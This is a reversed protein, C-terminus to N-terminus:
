GAKTLKFLKIEFPALTFSLKGNYAYTTDPADVPTGYIMQTHVDSLTEPAGMLKNFTLTLPSPESDPNRLAIIGEGDDSFSIYGYVNNEQPNGGIFMGNKLIAFNEHQFRMVKKLAEWKADSMLDASLYLENLAQGRVACWFLYKEFEEDTYEVKASKGYIPEHNYFAYLPLQVSRTCLCDYYRADRYTIEADLRSQEENNEAFGIDESNQLWLSNAWQLWWPSPNLFSTLNIWVRQGDEGSRRIKQLVEVWKELLDTAYYLDDAGGVAHDHTEDRCSKLAFGDLKLYSLRHEQVQQVLYDGVLETYRASAVCVDESDQNMFGNGATQIRKAFRKAKTYGGRPSLWLGLTSGQEACQQALPTLGNPFSKNCQWFDAKYSCWGDDLVYADLQPIGHASLANSVAAFRDKVSGESIKGMADFWTNYQFRLPSAVSIFRLYEFFAKKVEQITNDKAAGMVTVPCVYHRGVNKGLYYKVRGVGHSIRNDAGPFECGFFLSDIYFPQGLAAWAPPIESGDVRDAGFHTKSNIIGIDDLYIFDIVRSDSQDLTIQKCITNGDPHVWYELTVTVGQVEAFVFKLKNNEESSAIVPLGKASFDAGDEFRVVFECGNGDPVLSMGSYKNYIQSAFFSGNVIKFERKIRNSELKFM